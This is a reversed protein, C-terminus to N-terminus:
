PETRQESSPQPRILRLFDGLLGYSAVVVAAGVAALTAGVLLTGSWTSPAGEVVLHWASLCIGFVMATVLCWLVRHRRPGWRSSMARNLEGGVAGLLSGLAPAVRALLNGVDELLAAVDDIADPEAVRGGQAPGNAHPGQRALGWTRHLTSSAIAAAITTVALPVLLWGLWPGWTDVRARFVLAAICAGVSAWVLGLTVATGRLMQRAAFVPIADPRRWRLYRVCTIAAVVPLVLAAISLVADYPDEAWPSHARISPFQTSIAFLAGFSVVAGAAVVGTRRVADTGAPPIAHEDQMDPDHLHSRPGALYVDM